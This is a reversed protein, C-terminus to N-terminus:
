FCKSADVRYIYREPEDTYDMWKVDSPRRPKLLAVAESHSGAIVCRLDSSHDEHCVPCTPGASAPSSAAELQTKM